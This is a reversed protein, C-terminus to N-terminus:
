VRGAVKKEREEERGRREQLVPERAVGVGGRGRGLRAAATGAGVVGLGPDPGVAGGGLGGGAVV